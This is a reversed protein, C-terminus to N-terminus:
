DRWQVVDPLAPRERPTPPAARTGLYIFAIVREGATGGLAALIAEDQAVWESLWKAGYGLAHAAHLLNMAVCAASMEQEWVPKPGIKPASLVAIVLPARRFRKREIALASPPADPQLSQLRSAAVEGLSEQAQPGLVVLRWPTLKGHDPVRTAALLMSELAAPPPAPPVLETLSSSRRTLLAELAEM